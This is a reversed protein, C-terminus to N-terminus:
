ISSLLLTTGVARSRVYVDTAAHKVATLNQFKRQRGRNLPPAQILGECRHLAVTRANYCLAQTYQARQWQRSECAGPAIDFCSLLHLQPSHLGASCRQVHKVHSASIITAKSIGTCAVEARLDRQVVARSAAGCRIV